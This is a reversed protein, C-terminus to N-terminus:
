LKYKLDKDLPTPVCIIFADSAKITDSLSLNNTDIGKYILNQLEKEKTSFNRNNISNIYDTNTDFGIVNHNHNALIAATPLGIYGVGVVCINM